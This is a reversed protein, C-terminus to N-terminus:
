PIWVFERLNVISWVVDEYRQRWPTNLRPDAPPGQLVREALEQQITNAENRVHNWWTVQPLRPPTQPLVREQEPVIRGAFGESLPGLFIQVEAPTPRRSVFRLFLSDLLAQPSAAEVALDALPSGHAAKTLSITLTSNAVVAPQLVNPESERDTKPAQRNATWGFATLMEIVTEAKPLTLSPRDRENSVSVFMWCRRPKGYSNRTQSASRSDPDLTMPEVDMERGTAQFFSDAIQEATLRRRDPANFRRQEPSADRNQGIAERQYLQSTMITRTLQKIDYNNAVLEKGIWELLKPHSPPNGEWDQPPEVIGAGIYRRWVRNAIVQAFRKNQPATTLTALKERPDDPQQMLAGLAEDDAAGTIEAFPWTPTVKEGPKLTVKILSERGGNEFFGAPVTSSKPVTLPKRAFMAALSYLDRQTTSHYPSDHCRACQMEIGLFASGVIHGKAAFPSDNQAALAFGASGGDHASGRLMMLEFIMRDIPKNDRLSDYLYWRFPGTSNLSANILTPNEALIDLWYGMWNDAWRPDDLLRDVLTERKDPSADSLFQKVDNESPVVGVTDLFARRIFASDAILPVDDMAVANPQPDPWKAGDTIWKELVMIKEESLPKGSPPMRLDADDSRLRVMLESAHPDGPKIAPEGSFGGEIALARSELSLGGKDKEGHCRFCERKLIPLVTSFFEHSNAESTSGAQPDVSPRQSQVFADIPNASPPDTQPVSPAPNAALWDRGAQHRKQWYANQRSAAQRRTRDNLLTMSEEIQRLENEVDTDTLQLTSEVSGVPRLVSFLEDGELRVALTLEGPEPRFRKGGAIADFVVRIPKSDTIEVQGMTEQCRHWAPRQGPAPPPSVPTIPEEGHPAGVLPKSTTVLQGDIWARAMGRARMLITHEGPPLSVDAAMRVLVPAKWSARIGWDDYKLPIQDLLFSRGSWATASPPLSEEPYLWRDHTPLGEHFTVTVKNSELAGLEPMKTSISEGAPAEGVRRFRTQLTKEDLMVRHIAVSDLGGRFSNQPAGGLASGIWIQDNDIAPTRSTPGGVDWAGPVKVGDIWTQMTKPDGFRYAVAIHHWGTRPRFGQLSTYRHWNREQPESPVTAFLFSVRAEGQLGRIRLAWNQNDRSFGARGTRGKGIIYTNDGENLDRINIWSELTIEDGNDFDFPSEDGPDDFVFRAGKGDFNVASNNISFDPFVPPRPGPVDRHIGGVPRLPTAEEPGFEWFAIPDEDAVALAPMVTGVTASISLASLFHAISNM